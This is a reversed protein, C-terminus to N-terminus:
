IKSSSFRALELDSNSGTKKVLTAMALHIPWLFWLNPSYFFVTGTLILISANILFPAQDQSWNKRIQASLVWEIIVLTAGLILALYLDDTIQWFIARYFAWHLSAYLTDLPSARFGGIEGADNRVLSLWVGAFVLTGAFGALITVRVDILWEAAMLIFAHQMDGKGVAPSSLAFYELGKLGLLRPTLIGTVIALYPLGAFYFFQAIQEILPPDLKQWASYPLRNQRLWTVGIAFLVSIAALSGAWGLQDAM